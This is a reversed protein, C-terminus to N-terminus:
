GAGRGRRADLGERLEVAWRELESLTAGTLPPAQTLEAMKAELLERARVLRTRATGAPIELITAIEGTTVGEWYHLELIVQADIPIQRLAAQLLRVEERRGIEVSARPRLDEISVEAFEIRRPERYRARLHGCLQRYAIAFLFSRFSGDGRYRPLAEVCALFTSQLLESGEAGVKAYFFRAVAEYYREFLRFGAARDGERWKEVLRREEDADGAPVKM